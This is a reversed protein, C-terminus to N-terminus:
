AGDTGYTCSLCLLNTYRNDIVENPPNTNHLIFFQLVFIILGEFFFFNM